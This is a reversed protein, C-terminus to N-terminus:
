SSQVEKFKMEEKTSKQYCYQGYVYDWFRNLVNLKDIDNASECGELHKDAAIWEMLFEGLSVTGAAPLVPRLWSAVRARNRLRELQKDLFNIIQGKAANVTSANRLYETIAMMQSASLNSPSFGAQYLTQAKRILHENIRMFAADQRQSIKLRGSM